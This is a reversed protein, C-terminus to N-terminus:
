AVPEPAEGSAIQAPQAAASAPEPRDRADDLFPARFAAPLDATTFM